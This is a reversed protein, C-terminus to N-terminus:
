SRYLLVLGVLLAGAFASSSLWVAARAALARWYPMRDPSLRWPAVPVLPGDGRAWSWQMERFGGEQDFELLVAHPGPELRIRGTKTVAGHTGRNDVVLNGDVFLVSGDDSTTAFTYDGAGGIALYGFWRASFVGPPAGLRDTWDMEVRLMSIEPVVLGFDPRGERNLTQFYEVNLGDVPKLWGRVGLTAGSVALLVAFWLSLRKLPRAAVPVTAVGFGADDRGLPGSNM